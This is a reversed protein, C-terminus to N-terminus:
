GQPDALGYGFGRNQQELDNTSDHGELAVQKRAEPMQRTASPRYRQAM